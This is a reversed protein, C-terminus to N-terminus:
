QHVDDEIKSGAGFLGIAQQRWVVWAELVAIVEEKPVLERTDINLLWTKWPEESVKLLPVVHPLLFSSWFAEKSAELAQSMKLNLPKQSALPESTLSSGSDESLSIKLTTKPPPPKRFPHFENASLILGEAPALPLVVRAYRVLSVPILEEPFRGRMLAM